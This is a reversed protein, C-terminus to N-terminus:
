KFEASVPPDTMPSLVVRMKRKDRKEWRTARHKTLLRLTQEEPLQWGEVQFPIHFRCGERWRSCGYASRGALLYGPEAAGSELCRPCAMVKDFAPPPGGNVKPTRDPKTFDWSLRGSQDLVVAAKFV